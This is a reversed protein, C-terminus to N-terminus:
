EILPEQEINEVCDQVNKTTDIENEAHSRESAMRGIFEFADVTKGITSKKEKDM